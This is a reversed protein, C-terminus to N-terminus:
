VREKMLQDYLRRRRRRRALRRMMDDEDDDTVGLSDLRADSEDDADQRLARGGRAHHVDRQRATVAAATTSASVQERTAVRPALTKALERVAHVCAGGAVDDRGDDSRVVDDSTSESTAASAAAGADDVGGDDGLADGDCWEGNDDDDDEGRCRRCKDLVAQTCRYATLLCEVHAALCTRCSVDTCETTLTKLERLLSKLLVHSM